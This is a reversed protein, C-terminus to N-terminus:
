TVPTCTGREDDLVLGGHQIPWTRGGLRYRVVFRREGDKDKRTVIISSAM